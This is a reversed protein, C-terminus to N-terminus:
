LITYQSSFFHMFTISSELKRIIKQNHEWQLTDKKMKPKKRTIINVLTDAHTSQLQYNCKFSFQINKIKYDYNSILLNLPTRSKVNNLKKLLCTLILKIYIKLFM